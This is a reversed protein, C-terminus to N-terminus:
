RVTLSLQHISEPIGQCRYRAIVCIVTSSRYVPRCPKDKRDLTRRRCALVGTASLVSIEKSFVILGRLLSATV